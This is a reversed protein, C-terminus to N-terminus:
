KEDDQMFDLSEDDDDSFVHEEDMPNFGNDQKFTIPVKTQTKIFKTTRDDEGEVYGLDQKNNVQLM